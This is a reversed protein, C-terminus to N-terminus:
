CDDSAEQRLRSILTEKLKIIDERMLMDRSREMGDPVLYEEVKNVPKGTLVMVKQSLFLAEEVDHTIFVITKGLQKWQKLLWEQMEIRTISDLASFPEDLLLLDAGVCLTRAFAARQKMGGSLQNIKKDAWESLGVQALMEAAREEKQQRALKKVTMPLMVNEKVNLWPFLMDQQPMYSAYNKLGKIDQGDMEISGSNQRDLGNILRFITSKGSGSAGIVSVFSGKEVTFSIDSLVPYKNDPYTFSVNKFELMNNRTNTESQM